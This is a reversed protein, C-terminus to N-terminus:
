FLQEILQVLEFHNSYMAVPGENNKGMKLLDVPITKGDGFIIPRCQSAYACELDAVTDGIFWVEDLPLNIESGALALHTPASSPKDSDADGAGVLSFFINALDLYAAEKRLTIGMKNSVVFQLVGKEELKKILELAGPLLRLKDSWISRYTGTYIEGAEQWKEGFILPFSERMSKHVTNKVKEIGWPEHGMQVMTTDIATQILPWTDVLTNDWDFIVAKPKPLKQFARINFM